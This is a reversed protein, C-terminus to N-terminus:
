RAPSESIGPGDANLTDPVNRYWLLMSVTTVFYTVLGLAMVMAAWSYCPFALGGAEPLGLSLLDAFRAWPMDLSPMARWLAYHSALAGIAIPLGAIWLLTDPGANLELPMRPRQRDGRSRNALAVRCIRSRWGYAALLGSPTGFVAGICVEVVGPQVPYRAMVVLFFLVLFAFLAVLWAPTAMFPVESRTISQSPAHHLASRM